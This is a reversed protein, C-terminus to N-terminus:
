DLRPKTTATVNATLHAQRRMAAARLRNVPFPLRGPHADSKMVPSLASASAVHAMHLINDPAVDIEPRNLPKESRPAGGANASRGSVQSEAEEISIPSAREEDAPMDPDTVPRWARGQDDIAAPPKVDISTDKNVEAAVGASPAEARVAEIRAPGQAPLAVTTQQGDAPAEAQTEQERALSTEPADLAIARADAEIPTKTMTWDVLSLERADPPVVNTLIASTSAINDAVKAELTEQCRDGAAPDPNPDAFIDDLRLPSNPPLRDGEALDMAFRRDETEMSSLAGALGNPFDDEGNEHEANLRGSAGALTGGHQNSTHGCKASRVKRSPGEVKLKILEGGRAEIVATLEPSKRNGRYERCNRFDRDRKYGHSALVQTLNLDLPLPIRALYHGGDPAPAAKEALLDDGALGLADRGAQTCLSKAALALVGAAIRPESLHSHWGLIRSLTSFNRGVEAGLNAMGRMLAARQQLATDM